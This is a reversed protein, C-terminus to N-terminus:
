GKMRAMQKDSIMGRKALQDAQNAVAKMKTAHLAAEKQVRKLLAKDKVIEHARLMTHMADRVEWEDYKKKRSPKAAATSPVDSAM